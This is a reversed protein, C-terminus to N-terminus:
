PRGEAAAAVEQSVTTEQGVVIERWFVTQQLSPSVMGLEERARAEIGEPRTLLSAELRYRREEELLVELAQELETVLYGTRLIEIHIWTYALLGGGALSVALLVSVLDRVRRRDRQRVLYTNEVPRRIAYQRM